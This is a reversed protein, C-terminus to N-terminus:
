TFRIKDQFQQVWFFFQYASVKQLWVSYFNIRHWVQSKFCFLKILIYIELAKFFGWNEGGIM